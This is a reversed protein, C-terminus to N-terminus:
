IVNIFFMFGLLIFIISDLRDLVGGHGPMINSFDKKGYYRKIASFALDGFQSLVSLFLTVLIILLINKENIVTTYYITGIVTAMLSGGITGEITKKPSVITLKHKGILMGTIYAFTDTLISIIFLYIILSLSTNRTFMLLFFAIGIFFIGGIFYFADVVSYKNKDHYLVSPILYILFIASILRIDVSYIMEKTTAGSLVILTILIYTIFKMITPVEKKISKVDMFEKIALLSLIIVTIDFILGGTIFIPVLILLAILASITRTKM